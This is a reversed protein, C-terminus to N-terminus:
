LDLSFAFDAPRGIPLVGAPPRTTFGSRHRGGLVPKIRAHIGPSDGELAQLDAASIGWIKAGSASTVDVPSGHSGAPVAGEGFFHSPGLSALFAGDAEVEVMGDVVVFFAFGSIREGPDVDREELRAAIVQRDDADIREFVPFLDLMPIDWKDIAM